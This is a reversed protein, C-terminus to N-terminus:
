RELVELAVYSCVYAVRDLQDEELSSPEGGIRDVYVVRTGWLDAPYTGFLLADDLQFASRRLDSEQYERAVLRVQFSSANGLGDLVLGAGPLPTVQALLDGRGFEEQRTKAVFKFDLTTPVEDLWSALADLDIM